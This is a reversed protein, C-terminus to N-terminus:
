IAILTFLYVHLILSTGGKKCANGGEQMWLNCTMSLTIPSVIHLTDLVCESYRKM